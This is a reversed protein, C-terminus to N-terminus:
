VQGGQSLASLIYKAYLAAVDVGTVEEIKRFHANSNVEAVLYREGDFLLDVGAYELGLIRSASEALSAIEPTLPISEGRGGLAVNARFEREATAVRQMAAVAKGGITIVRIDRAGCEIYRQYLHPEPLLRARLASLAERDRALYVERGFAGFCKKVVVPYGLREEVKALFARDEEGAFYLPSSITEPQPLASLAIHTLMKDDSLRISEARNFLRVGKSELMRALHDDKDLFVAFDCSLDGEIGEAGVTLDIESARLVTVSVGEKGLADAIRAAGEDGGRWYANVIVAGRLGSTTRPSKISM